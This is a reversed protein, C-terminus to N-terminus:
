QIPGNNDLMKLMEKRMEKPNNSSSIVHWKVHPNIIMVSNEHTEYYRKKIKQIIEVSM